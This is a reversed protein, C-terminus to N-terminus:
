LREIGLLVSPVPKVHVIPVQLVRKPKEKSHRVPQMVSQVCMRVAKM